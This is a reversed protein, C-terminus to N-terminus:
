GQLLCLGPQLSLQDILVTQIIAGLFPSRARVSRAEVLFGRKQRGDLISITMSDEVAGKIPLCSNDSLNIKLDQKNLSEQFVADYINGEVDLEGTKNDITGYDGM